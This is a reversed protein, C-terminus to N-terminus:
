QLKRGKWYYSKQFSLLGVLIVYYAYILFEPIFYRLLPKKDFHKAMVYTIRYDVIGKILAVFLFIILYEKALLSLFSLLVFLFNILITIAGSYLADFDKYVRTKSAWRKRQQIFDNIRELAKTYVVHDKHSSFRIGKPHKKKVKFLLFVDDGSAVVSENYHNANEFLTKRYALNAGNCMSAKQQYAAGATMGMISLFELSQFKEFLSHENHFLVTGLLLMCNEDSFNTNIESLWNVGMICDGDTTAIIDGSANNIGIKLAQQKPSIHSRKEMRFLQLQFATHKRIYTEVIAVSEDESHDDIIFVEYLNKPYDQKRLAELLQHLHKAENRIAIVVSIKKEDIVDFFVDGRKNLFFWRNRELHILYLFVIAGSIIAMWDYM